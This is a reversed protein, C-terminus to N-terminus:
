VVTAFYACAQHVSEPLSAVASDIFEKPIGTKGLLLPTLYSRLRFLYDPSIVKDHWFEDEDEYNEKDADDIGALQLAVFLCRPFNEMAAGLIRGDQSMFHEIFLHHCFRSETVDVTLPLKSLTFQVAHPATHGIAAQRYVSLKFLASINAKDVAVGASEPKPVLATPKVLASISCNPVASETSLVAATALKFACLLLRLLTSPLKCVLAAPRPVACILLKDVCTACNLVAAIADKDVAAKDCNLAACNCVSEAM